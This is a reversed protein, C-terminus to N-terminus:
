VPIRSGPNLNSYYNENSLYFRVSHTKEIKEKEYKMSHFVLPTFKYFHTKPQPSLFLKNNFYRFKMGKIKMLRFWTNANIWHFLWILKWHAFPVAQNYTIIHKPQFIQKEFINTWQRNCCLKAGSAADHLVWEIRLFFFFYKM